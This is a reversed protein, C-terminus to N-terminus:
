GTAARAPLRVVCPLIRSRCILSYRFAFIGVTRSRTTCCAALNTSGIKPAAQLPMSWAPPLGAATTTRNPQTAICPTSSLRSKDAFARAFTRPAALDSEVPSAFGRATPSSCCIPTSLSVRPFRTAPHQALRAGRLHAFALPVLSSVSLLLQHMGRRTPSPVLLITSSGFCPLDRARLAVRAFRISSAHPSRSVPPDPRLLSSASPCCLGPPAFSGHPLPTSRLLSSRGSMGKALPFSRDLLRALVLPADFGAVPFPTESSLDTGSDQLRVPSFGGYPIKSPTNSVDDM